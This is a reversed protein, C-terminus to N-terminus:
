IIPVESWLGSFPWQSPLQFTWPCDLALFRWAPWKAMEWRLTDSSLTALTSPINVGDQNLAPSSRMHLGGSITWLPNKKGCVCPGGQEWSPAGCLCLSPLLAKHCSIFTHPLFQVWGISRNGTSTETGFPINWPYHAISWCLCSSQNPDKDLAIHLSKIIVRYVCLM